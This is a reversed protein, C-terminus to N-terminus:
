LPLALHRCSSFSSPLLGLPAQRPLYSTQPHQHFSSTNIKVEIQTNPKIITKNFINFHYPKTELVM